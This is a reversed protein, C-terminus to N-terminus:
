PHCFVITLNATHSCPTPLTPEKQPSHLIFRNRAETRNKNIVKKVDVPCEGQIYVETDGLNGRKILVSAM